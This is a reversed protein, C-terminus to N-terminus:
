TVMLREEVGAIRLVKPLARCPVGDELGAAKAIPSKVPQRARSKTAM